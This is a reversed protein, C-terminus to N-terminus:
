VIIGATSFLRECCPVSTVPISMIRQAVLSLVPCMAASVLWWQLPDASKDLPPCAGACNVAKICDDLMAGV